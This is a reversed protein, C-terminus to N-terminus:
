RKRADGLSMEGFSRARLAAAKATIAPTHQNSAGRDGSLSTGGNQAALKMVQGISM